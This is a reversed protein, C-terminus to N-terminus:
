ELYYKKKTIIKKSNLYNSINRNGIGKGQLSKILSYNKGQKTTWQSLDKTLNNYRKSISFTLHLNSVKNKM